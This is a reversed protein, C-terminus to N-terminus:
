IAELHDERDGSIVALSLDQRAPRMRRTLECMAELLVNLRSPDLRSVFLLLQRDPFGWGRRAARQNLRFHGPERRLIVAIKCEEVQYLDLMQQRDLSTAAVIRDPRTWSTRSSPPPQPEKPDNAGAVLEKMRGLTHFMQVVPVRWEPVLQCAVWGSLWYHSHILDYTAGAERAHRRVGDVFEPLLGFVERRDVPAAPGAPIHVTRYGGEERVTYPAMEPDQLRTFM